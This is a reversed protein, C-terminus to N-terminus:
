AGAGLLTPATDPVEQIDLDWLFRWDAGNNSYRRPTAQLVVFAFTGDPHVADCPANLTLPQNAGVLANLAQYDAKTRTLLTITSSARRLSDYIVVPDGSGVVALTSTTRDFTRDPWQQVELYMTQSLDATSLM